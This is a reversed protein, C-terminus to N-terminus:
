VVSKRDIVRMKLFKQVNGSFGTYLLLNGWVVSYYGVLCGVWFIVFKRQYSNTDTGNKPKYAFNGTPARKRVTKWLNKWLRNTAM